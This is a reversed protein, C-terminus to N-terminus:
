IYINPYEDYGNKNPIDKYYYKETSILSTINDM